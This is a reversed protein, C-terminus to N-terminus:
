HLDFVWKMIVMNYDGNYIRFFNSMCLWIVYDM